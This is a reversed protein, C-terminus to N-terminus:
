GTPQDMPIITYSFGPGNNIISGIAAFPAKKRENLVFAEAQLLYYGHMTISSSFILDAEGRLGMHIKFSILNNCKCLLIVSFLSQVGKGPFFRSKRMFRKVMVMNESLIYSSNLRILRSYVCQSCIWMCGPFVSCEKYDLKKIRQLTFKFLYM